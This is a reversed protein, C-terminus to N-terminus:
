NDSNIKAVAFFASLLFTVESLRVAMLLVSDLDFRFDAPGGTRSTHGAGREGSPSPALATDFSQKWEIEASIWLEVALRLLYM